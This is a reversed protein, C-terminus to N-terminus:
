RRARKRKKAVTDITELLMSTDGFIPVNWHVFTGTSLNAFQVGYGHSWDTPTTHMYLPQLKALTGPCWAGIGESSVTRKIVSASRHTHGHVVNAAFRQLHVATANASYGIGHTFFCKGRRITGQISIGQYFESRKFYRINRAKLKLVAEPGFVELLANADRRREFNRAAWREVHGEHNGELLDQQARPAADTVADIFANTANYDDEYAECMEATYNRQHSNFTGGCDLADGLYIVEDPDLAKIDKLIAKRAGPDIHAGHFDPVIVRTISRGM